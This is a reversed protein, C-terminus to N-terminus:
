FCRPDWTHTLMTHRYVVVRRVGDPMVMWLDLLKRATPPVEAIRHGEPTEAVHKGPQSWAAGVDLGGQRLQAALQTPKKETAVAVAVFAVCSDGQREVSWDAKLVSASGQVGAEIQERSAGIASENRLHAVVLPVLLLGAAALPLWVWRQRLM